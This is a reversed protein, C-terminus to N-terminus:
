PLPGLVSLASSRDCNDAFVGFMDNHARLGHDHICRERGLLEILSLGLSVLKALGGDHSHESFIVLNKVTFDSVNALASGLEMESLRKRNARQQPDLVVVIKEQSFYHVAQLRLSNPNHTDADFV